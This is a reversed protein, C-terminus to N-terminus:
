LLEGTVSTKQENPSPNAQHFGLGKENLFGPAPAEPNTFVDMHWSHPQAWNGPVLARASLASCVECKMHHNM